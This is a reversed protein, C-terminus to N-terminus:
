VPGCKQRSLTAASAKAPDFLAANKWVAIMAEQAIEEALTADGGRRIFYSKLRPAFHRFLAEFAARDQLQAIRRIADGHADVIGPMLASGNADIVVECEPKHDPNLAAIVGNEILVTDIPRMPNALDGTFFEGINTILTRPM